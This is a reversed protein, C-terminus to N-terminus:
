LIAVYEHHGDVHELEAEYTALSEMVSPTLREGICGFRIRNQGSHSLRVDCVGASERLERMLKRRDHHLDDDTTPTVMGANPDPVV